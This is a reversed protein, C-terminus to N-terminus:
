VLMLRAPATVRGFEDKPPKIKMVQPGPELKGTRLKPGAIDMLVRCRRGVEREAKRLNDVMSGWKAQDDHACNVRMVDMGAAVLDKVLLYDDAAESPMTVMMKVRRGEEKHGFLQDSNRELAERGMAPTVVDHPSEEEQEHTLGELLSIVADLTYLVHSESRGLSSVGMSSLEEQLERVDLRRLAVYHLLNAASMSREGFQRLDVGGVLELMSGRIRKLEAILELTEARTPFGGSLEAASEM